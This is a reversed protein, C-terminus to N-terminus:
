SRAARRTREGVRGTRRTGCPQLRRGGGRADRGRRLLRRRSPGPGARRAGLGRRCRARVLLDGGLELARGAPRLSAAADRCRRREQLTGDRQRDLRRPTRLARQSRRLRAELGAGEVRGEPEQDRRLRVGRRTGARVLRGAARGHLRRRPERCRRQGTAEGLRLVARATRGRLERALGVKGGPASGDDRAMELSRLGRELDAAGDLREWWATGSRLGSSRSSSPSAKSAVSPRAAAVGVNCRAAFASASATGTSSTRRQPQSAGPALEARPVGFAGDRDRVVPGARGRRQRARALQRDVEVRQRQVRCPEPSKAPAPRRTASLSLTAAAVPLRDRGEGSSLSRANCPCPLRPAGTSRLRSGALSPRLVLCRPSPQASPPRPGTCRGRGSRPPPM